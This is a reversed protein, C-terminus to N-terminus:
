TELPNLRNPLIKNLLHYYYYTGQKWIVAQILGSWYYPDICDRKLSLLNIINSFHDFLLIFSLLQTSQPAFSIHIIKRHPKHQQKIHHRQQQLLYKLLIQKVSDHCFKPLERNSPESFTNGM